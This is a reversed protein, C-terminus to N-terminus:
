KPKTLTLKHVETSGDTSQWSQLKRKNTIVIWTKALESEEGEITIVNNEIKWTFPTKDEVPTGMLSYSIDKIGTGDKQFTINRINSLAVGIEGHTGEEYNAIDWTGIIAKSCSTFAVVAFLFADIKLTKKIFNVKFNIYM